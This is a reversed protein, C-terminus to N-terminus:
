AAADVGTGPFNVLQVYAPVLAKLAAGNPMHWNDIVLDPRANLITQLAGPTLEGMGIEAVINYGLWTALAKYHVHVALRIDKANKRAAGSLLRAAVADLQQLWTEAAAATHFRAALWRVEQALRPPTNDTYVQILATEPLEVAQTINKIFGEYGAWLLHEAALVYEMDSARFDYEAQHKLEAPALVRTVNAGAAAAIAGVWTTSAVVDPIEYVTAGVASDPSEPSEAAATQADSEAQGPEVAVADAVASEKSGAAFLAAAAGTFLLTLLLIRALGHIKKMVMMSLM